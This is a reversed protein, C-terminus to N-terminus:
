ALPSEGRRTIDMVVKALKTADHHTRLTEDVVDAAVYRGTFGPLRRAEVAVQGWEAPLAEVNSNAILHSVPVGTHELFGKLHEPAGYGDTEGSETAVNCVFVKPAHSAQLSEKFGDVLFNPIISTYLSGPGIVIIDAERVAETVEPNVPLQAPELWVRKMPAPFAGIRSEGHVVEGSQTVGTLVVDTALTSPLVRGNVRLLQAAAELGPDFGGRLDTLAALLLNGLSHGELGVGNNFRYQMLSEMLPEAESLAILCNRADGPPPMALETRLRGSSGGDDAVTVVATINRTYLKLGRLLTALGTGGGIAVINPGRVRTRYQHLDQLLRKTERGGMVGEVFLRYLHRASITVLLVGVGGFILGRIMLDMGSLTVFRAATLFGTSLPITLLFSAGLSLLLVGIGAVLAWRKIGIGPHLLLALSSPTRVGRASPSDHPTGRNGSSRSKM